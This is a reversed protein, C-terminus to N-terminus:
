TRPLPDSAFPDGREEGGWWSLIRSWDVTWVPVGPSLLSCSIVTQVKKKFITQVKTCSSNSAAKAERNM